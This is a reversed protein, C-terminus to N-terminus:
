RVLGDTGDASEEEELFGTSQLSYMHQYPSDKGPIHCTQYKIANSGNLTM